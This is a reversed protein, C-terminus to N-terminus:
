RLREAYTEERNWKWEPPATVTAKDVLRLLEETWRSDLYVERSVLERVWTNMSKRDAKARERVAELVAEPLTITLNKVFETYM